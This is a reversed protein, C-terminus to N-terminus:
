DQSFISWSPLFLRATFLPSSLAQLKFHQTAIEGWGPKDCPQHITGPLISALSTLIERLDWSPSGWRETDLSLLHHQPTSPHNLFLSFSINCLFFFFRHLLLINPPPASASLLALRIPMKEWHRELTPPRKRKWLQLDGLFTWNYIHALAPEQFDFHLCTLLM